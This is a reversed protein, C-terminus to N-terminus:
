RVFFTDVTFCHLFAIVQGRVCVNAELIHGQLTGQEAEFQICQFVHFNEIEEGFHM